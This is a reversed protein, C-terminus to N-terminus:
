NKHLLDKPSICSVGVATDHTPISTPFRWSIALPPTPVQKWVSLTSQTKWGAWHVRLHGRPCILSRFSQYSKRKRVEGYQVLCCISRRCHWTWPLYMPILSPTSKHKPLIDNGVSGTNRGTQTQRLLSAMPLLKWSLCATMCSLFDSPVQFKHWSKNQM